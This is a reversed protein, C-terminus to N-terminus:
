HYFNSNPYRQKLTNEFDYQTYEANYPIYVYQINEKNLNDLLWFIIPKEEIKILAKPLEYGECKFRQGTGGLPILVIM